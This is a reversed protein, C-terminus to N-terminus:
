PSPARYGLAALDVGQEALRAADAPTGYRLLAEVPDDLALVTPTPEDPMSSPAPTQRPSIREPRAQRPRASGLGVAAILVVVAVLLLIAIM